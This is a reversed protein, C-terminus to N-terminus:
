RRNIISKLRWEISGPFNKNFSEIEEILVYDQTEYTRIDGVRLRIGYKEPGNNKCGSFLITLLVLIIAINFKFKLM